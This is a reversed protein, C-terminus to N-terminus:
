YEHGIRFLGRDIPSITSPTLVRSPTSALTPSHCLGPLMQPGSSPEARESLGGQSALSCATAIAQDHTDVGVVSCGTAATIRLAPGGAGCAVDLLIKRPTLDLWELFKDQEDSTVWSNQGIDEGFAERRIEAYLETQFNGYNADYRGTLSRSTTKAMQVEARIPHCSLKTPSKSVTASEVSKFLESRGGQYALNVLARRIAPWAFDMVRRRILLGEVGM